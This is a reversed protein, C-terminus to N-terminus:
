FKKRKGTLLYNLSKAFAAKFSVKENSSKEIM